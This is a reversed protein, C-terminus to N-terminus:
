YLSGCISLIYATLFKSVSLWLHSTKMLIRREHSLPAICFCLPFITLALLSLHHWSFLTKWVPGACMYVGLSQPLMYLAKKKIAHRTLGKYLFSIESVGLTLVAVPFVGLIFYVNFYVNSASIM